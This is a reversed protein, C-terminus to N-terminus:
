SRSANIAEQKKQHIFWETLFAGVTVHIIRDPSDTDEFAPLIAFELWEGDPDKFKLWTSAARKWGGEGTSVQAGFCHVETREDEVAPLYHTLIQAVTECAHHLAAMEPTM